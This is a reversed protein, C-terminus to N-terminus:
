CPLRGTRTTHETSTHEQGAHPDIWACIGKDAAAITRISAGKQELALRKRGLRLGPALPDERVKTVVMM